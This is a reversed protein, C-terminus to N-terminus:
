VGSQPATKPLRVPPSRRWVQEAFGPEYTVCQQVVGDSVCEMQRVDHPNKMTEWTYIGSAIGMLIISVAAAAILIDLLRVKM